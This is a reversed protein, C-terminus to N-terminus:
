LTLFLCLPAYALNASAPETGAMGAWGEAGLQQHLPSNMELLSCGPCDLLPQMLLLHPKRKFVQWRWKCILELKNPKHLGVLYSNNNLMIPPPYAVYMEWSGKKERACRQSSFSLRIFPRKPRIGASNWSDFASLFAPTKSLLKLIEICCATCLSHARTCGLSFSCENCLSNHPTCSSLTIISFLNMCNWCQRGLVEAREVSVQLELVSGAELSLTRLTRSIGKDDETRKTM